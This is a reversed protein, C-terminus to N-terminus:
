RKAYKKRKEVREFNHSFEVEEFGVPHDKRLPYGVWDSPMLIRRLDPHGEFTVGMLDFVEREHFNATPWVSTVSPVRPDDADLGVKLWVRRKNAMSLLQYNVVFRRAGTMELSDYGSPVSEQQMSLRDLGSVDALFTYRCQPEDRLFTCIEVIKSPDVWIILQRRFELDLGVAEGFKARLANVVTANDM